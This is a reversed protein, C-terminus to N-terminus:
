CTSFDLNQYFINLKLNSEIQGLLSLKRVVLIFVLESCIDATRIKFYSVGKSVCVWAHLCVYVIICKFADVYYVCM